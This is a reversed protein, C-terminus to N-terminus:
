ENMEQARKEGQNSLFTNTKQMENKSKWCASVHLSLNKIYKLTTLHAVQHTIKLHLSGTYYYGSLDPTTDM